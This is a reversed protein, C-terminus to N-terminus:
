GSRRRHDLTHSVLNPSLPVQFLALSPNIYLDKNVLLTTSLFIHSFFLCLYIYLL